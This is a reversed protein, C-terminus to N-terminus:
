KSDVSSYLYIWETHSYNDLTTCDLALAFRAADMTGDMTFILNGFLVGSPM